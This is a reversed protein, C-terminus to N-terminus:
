KSNSRASQRGLTRGHISMRMTDQARRERKHQPARASRACGDIGIKPLIRRDVSRHDAVTAAVRHGLRAALGTFLAPGQDFADIGKESTHGTNGIAAHAKASSANAGGRTSRHAVVVADSTEITETAYAGVDATGSRGVRTAVLEFGEAFTLVARLRIMDEVLANAHTGGTAIWQVVQHGVPGYGTTIAVRFLAACEIREKATGDTHICGRLGLKGRLVFRATVAIKATMACRAECTEQGVCGLIGIARTASAVAARDVGVGAVVSLRLAIGVPAAICIECQDTAGANLAAVMLAAENLTEVVTVLM